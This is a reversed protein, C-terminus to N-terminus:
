KQIMLTSHVVIASAAASKRSMVRATPSVPVDTTVPTSRAAASLLEGRVAVDRGPV